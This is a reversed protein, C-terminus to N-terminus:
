GSILVDLEGGLMRYHEWFDPYSKQVCQAGLLTVPNQCRTAAVASMMAIRHDNCCDVSAGGRLSDVGVITLSDPHEEVQAGMANLASTVSTLRDSEKIRLRAAHVLQTTGERVAAMAALPPVLDPCQSVDIEVEGSRCLRAFHEQIVRDGQTSHPDMGAVEVASGLAKAAYWFAAQSWDAEVAVDCPRYCQGGPVHFEREGVRNAEIGFRRLVALTMDVYGVSELDTTLTIRSSGDLLPLAYLLGTIFQSSVNGPLTYEGPTLQGRVTLVGNEQAYFIHKADFIEFYPQQPREMLRGQGTFRGGGRLALAVPILFRLTSGSEGCDLLPLETGESNQLAALCRRTARMDQSDSLGTVRSVDGALAAGMLCRHAM